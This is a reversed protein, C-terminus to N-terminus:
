GNGGGPQGSLAALAAAQRSQPRTAPLGSEGYPVNRQGETLKVHNTGNKILHDFTFWSKGHIGQAEPIKALIREWDFKPDAARTRLQKRREPTIREIPTLGWQSAVANWTELYWNASRKPKSVAEGDDAVATSLPQESEGGVEVEVESSGQSDSTPPTEHRIHSPDASMDSVPAADSTPPTDSKIGTDSTLPPGSKDAAREAVRQLHANPYPAASLKALNVRYLPTKRKSGPTNAAEYVTLWKERILRSMVRRAQQPSKRLEAAITDLSQYLGVGEDDAFGAALDMAVRENGGYPLKIKVLWKATVSM